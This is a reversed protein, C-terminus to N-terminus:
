RSVELDGVVDVRGGDTILVGAAGRATLLSTARDPGAILAGTALAEARWGEGATVTVSRLATTASRGSVPDMVHHARSRGRGWARRLGSSTAVAGTRVCLRLLVRAPDAPDAVDVPWGDVPADGAVALDGGLNVLACRAGAEVLERAVLEAAHGKAIGGVDVQAGRRLAVARTAPDLRLACAGRGPVPAARPGSRVRVAAFDRDYGAAIVADLMTPDFRGATLHHARVAVALLTFTEPTVTMPAAARNLRSLESDPRFRSWRDELDEIRACATALLRADGELLVHADCGMATFRREAMAVPAPTRMATM